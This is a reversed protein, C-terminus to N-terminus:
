SELLSTPQLSSLHKCFGDFAIAKQRAIELEEATIASMLFSIDRINKSYTRSIIKFIQIILKSPKFILELNVEELNIHTTKTIEELSLRSDINPYKNYFCLLWTEIEMISFFLNIKDQNPLTLIVQKALNTFVQNVSDCVTRPTKNQKQLEREYKASNMDRLGVISNWGKLFINNASDKISSLVREDNGVIRVQINLKTDGGIHPAIFPDDTFTNLKIFSITLFSTNYILLLLYKLFTAECYGEVFIVVKKM